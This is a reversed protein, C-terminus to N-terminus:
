NKPKPTHTPKPTYSAAPTYTATPVETPTATAFLTATPTPTLTETATPAPTPEGELTATPTVTPEGEPTADAEPTTTPTPTPTMTPAPTATGRAVTLYSRGLLYRGGEATVIYLHQGLTNPTFQWMWTYGEPTQWVGVFRPAFPGDLRLDTYPLRSSIWADVRQGVAPSTPAFNIAAAVIPTPTATAVPTPTRSPTPTGTPSAPTATLRPTATNTPASGLGSATLSSQSATQSAPLKATAISGGVASAFPPLSGGPTITVNRAVALGAAEQPRTATARPTATGTSVAPPVTATATPASLQAAVATPSIQAPLGALSVPSGSGAFLDAYGGGALWVALGVVTLSVRWSSLVSALSAIVTVIPDSPRGAADGSNWPGRDSNM